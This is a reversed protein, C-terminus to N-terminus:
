GWLVWSVHRQSPRPAHSAPHEWLTRVEAPIASVGVRETRWRAVSSYRPLEPCTRLRRRLGGFTRGKLMLSSGTPWAPSSQMRKWDQEWEAWFQDPQWGRRAPARFRPRAPSLSLAGARTWWLGLYPHRARDM